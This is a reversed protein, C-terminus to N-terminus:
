VRSSRIESGKGLDGCNRATRARRGAQESANRKRHRISQYSFQSKDNSNDAPNRRLKKYFLDQENKSQKKPNRKPTRTMEKEFSPAFNCYIKSIHLNKQLKKANKQM